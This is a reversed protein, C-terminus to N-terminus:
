SIDLMNRIQDPTKDKLMSAMQRCTRNLLDDMNLYDTARAMSMLDDWSEDPDVTERFMWKKLLDLTRSSVAIPIPEDGGVDEFCQQLVTSQSSDFETLHGDNTRVMLLNM